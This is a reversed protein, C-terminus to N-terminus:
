RYRRGRPDKPLSPAQGAANRLPHSGNHLDLLPEVDGDDAEGVDALGHQEVCKDLFLERGGTALGVGGAPFYQAYEIV